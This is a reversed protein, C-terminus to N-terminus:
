EMLEIVIDSGYAILEPSAADPSATVDIDAYMGGCVVIDDPNPGLQFVQVRIRAQTYRGPTFWFDKKVAQDAVEFTAEQPASPEGHVVSLRTVLEVPASLGTGSTFGVVVRAPEQALALRPVVVVLRRPIREAEDEDEDDDVPAVADYSALEEAAAHGQETLRYIQNGDMVIYGKTVLRRIVKGFGRESLGVNECIEDVTATTHDISWFYRIVDLADPPLTRLHYPLEMM